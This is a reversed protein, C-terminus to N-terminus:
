NIKEAEGKSHQYHIPVLLIVADLEVRCTTAYYQTPTGHDQLESTGIMKFRLRDNGNLKNKVIM